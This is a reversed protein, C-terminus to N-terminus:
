VLDKNGTIFKVDYRFKDLRWGIDTLNAHLYYSGIFERTKGKTAAEKYHTATAYCFIEAAIAETDSNFKIIFNGAHHHVQDIGSFGQEWMKCIDVAKLNKAPGAGLSSMDFMVEDMFVETLLKKWERADTYVFLKNALEVVLDNKSKLEM